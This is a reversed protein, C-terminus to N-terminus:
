SLPTSVSFMGTVPTAGRLNSTALAQPRAPDRAGYRHLHPARSREAPSPSTTSTSSSATATAASRLFVTHRGTTPRITTMRTQYTQWGGTDSIELTGAPANAPSDLRVEIRGGRDDTESAVRAIFQTAGPEGFDVDDFRLWDGNNIWAANQGGGDDGTDEVETGQRGPATEAQVVSYADIGPSAPAPPVASPESSPVAPESPVAPPPAAVAPTAPGDQLRGILYGLLVLALGATALALRNRTVRSRSHYVGPPRSAPTTM